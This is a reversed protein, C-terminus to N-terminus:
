FISHFVIQANCGVSLKDPALLLRQLAAITLDDATAGTCYNVGSRSILLGADVTLDQYLGM